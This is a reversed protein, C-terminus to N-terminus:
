RHPVESRSTTVRNLAPYGVSTPLAPRWVLLRRVLRGLDVLGLAAFPMLVADVPLRYRILAWSLLHITTYLAAFSLLLLASARQGPQLAAPRTFALVLGYVMLPLCVGFSLVRVMNSLWGSEPAPWFMFYASIRSLSLRVYRGPDDVVFQIGRRLLAQDLAAEDLSRLETPILRQYTGDPLIPVFHSGYIPHNGWFFAYGSNTNLLVLRDFVRYNRVTWPLIVVAVVALSALLGRVVEAHPRMTPGVGEPTAARRSSWWLWLLLLPTVLLFIQRLLTAVGIALGLVVWPQLRRAAATMSTFGSIATHPLPATKSSGAVRHDRAGAAMNTVQDLVWLTALVYFSETMLAGAYYLFYGYLATMGACALGIAPGFLRRALRYALWPALGGTLAAQFLRAVVPYHGALGYIASLFLAYGFSWFATPSDAPTAPWWAEPFSFGHGTVIRQALADYSRQDDIGPLTVMSNGLYLAVAVRLCVAALLIQWLQLKM